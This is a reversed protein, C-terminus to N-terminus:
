SDLRRGRANRLLHQANHAHVTSLFHHDLSATVKHEAVGALVEEVELVRDMLLARDASLLELLGVM